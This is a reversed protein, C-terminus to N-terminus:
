PLKSDDQVRERRDQLDLGDTFGRGKIKLIYPNKEGIASSGGHDWGGDTRM